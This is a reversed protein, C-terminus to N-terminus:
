IIFLLVLGKFLLCHAILNMLIALLLLVGNVHETFSFHNYLHMYICYLHLMDIHVLFDFKTCTMKAGTM